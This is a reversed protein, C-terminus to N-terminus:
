KGVPGGAADKGDGGSLQEAVPAGDRL